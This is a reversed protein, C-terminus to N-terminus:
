AGTCRSRRPPPEGLGQDALHLLPRAATVRKESVNFEVRRNGENEPIGAQVKDLIASTSDNVGDHLQRRGPPRAARCPM